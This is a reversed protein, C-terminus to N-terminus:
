PCVVYSLELKPRAALDIAERSAFHLKEGDLPDDVLPKLLWGESANSGAIMGAVDTTVDWSLTDGAKTSPGVTLQASAPLFDGGSTSWSTSADFKSWSAGAETWSKQLRHTGIDQTAGDNLIVRLKLTATQLKAGSPLTSKELDFAVLVRHGAFANYTLLELVPKSGHNSGPPTNVIYTDRAADLILSQSGGCGASGGSGAAGGTAGTGGTAGIGGTGGTTGTGGTGGMAGGSGAAGSAGGTGGAGGSEDVQPATEPFLSCAVSALGISFLYGSRM